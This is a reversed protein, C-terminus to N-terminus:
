EALTTIKQVIDSYWTGKKSQLHQLTIELYRKSVAGSGKSLQYLRVVLTASTPNMELFDVLVNVFELAM